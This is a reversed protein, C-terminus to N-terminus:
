WELSKKELFSAIGKKCDTSERATANQKAAFNLAESLPM